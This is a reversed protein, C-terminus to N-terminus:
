RTRTKFVQRRADVNIVEPIRLDCNAYSPLSNGKGITTMEDIVLGLLYGIGSAKEEDGIACGAM